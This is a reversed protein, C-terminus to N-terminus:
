LSCCCCSSASTQSFYVLQLNVELASQVASALEIQVFGFCFVQLQM